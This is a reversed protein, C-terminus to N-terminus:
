NVKGMMKRISSSMVALAVAAVLTILAVKGFLSVLADPSGEEFFGAVWGAAYNGLSISLFWVGMMLGTLRAPALKTTTSLGVPSLCLEGIAQLLYVVTLWVPSVSNKGTILTSAYAVIVFSLSALLLGFSFKMPSSTFRDARKLWILSFLPALAVLFIPEASQFWSSPFDFGLIRNRTFTDAFLTLSSSAQEFAAWFLVSFVFLICIVAVPKKEEKRLYWGFLYILGIIVGAILVWKIVKSIEQTGFAEDGFYLGIILLSLTITTLAGGAAKKLAEQTTQQPTHGVTALRNGGRLYQMLGLTMGVGAAAFGWHWSSEPRLGLSSLFTKFRTDQALFGCVLPAILAGLNIGMYFISFGSDRRADNEGYLGGVMSSINPKLLGTGLVILILGIYFSTLTPLAMSFHGLAIAIGGILVALRAGLVNDALWGGPVSMLYVSGVYAGVIGTSKPVSFGLGGNEVATKMYLLLIARMGYYSFREWMETFFLTTLGRPHGGIGSRDLTSDVMADPTTGSALSHASM